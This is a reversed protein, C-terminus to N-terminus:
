VCDVAGRVTIFVELLDFLSETSDNRRSPTECTLMGLGRKVSVKSNGRLRGRGRGRRRAPAQEKEPKKGAAM